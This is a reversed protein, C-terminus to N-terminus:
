SPFRDTVKVARQMAVVFSLAHWLWTCLLSKMNTWYEPVHRAETSTLQMMDPTNDDQGQQALYEPPVSM